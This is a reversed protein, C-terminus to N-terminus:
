RRSPEIQAKLWEVLLEAAPTLDKPNRRLWGIDQGQIVRLAAEEAAREGPGLDPQAVSPLVAFLDWESPGFSLTFNLIWTYSRYFQEDGEALASAPVAVVVLDPKDGTQNRYFRFWGLEKASAEIEALSKGTPDWATVEVRAGPRLRALAPAILADYPKMALVRVPAGRELLDLTKPIAPHPPPVDALSIRKGSLTYTVEEAFLKHGRMNPHITDSMLEGFARRSARRVDAYARYCDAVPVRLERGVERVIQVFEELRGEPRRADEPLIANSTMLIVDSGSSRCQRVISVLNDRFVNPPNRVIDNMGFMVAVLHPKRELVDARIRALAQTTSNGSVGANIVELRAKPYLRQLAIALMDSWARRSGTHYYIGTISSGFCVIRVTEKGSALLRATRLEEETQATARAFTLGCLVLLAAVRLPLQAM